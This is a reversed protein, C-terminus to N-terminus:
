WVFSLLNKQKAACRPNGGERRDEVVRKAREEGKGIKLLTRAYDFAGVAEKFLSGERACGRQYFLELEREKLTRKGDGKERESAQTRLGAEWVGEVASCQIGSCQAAYLYELGYHRVADRAGHGGGLNGQAGEGLEGDQADGGQEGIGLASKLENQNGSSEPKRIKKDSQM